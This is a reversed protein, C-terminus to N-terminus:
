MCDCVEYQMKGLGDCACVFFSAIIILVIDWGNHITWWTDIHGTCTCHRAVPVLALPALLIPPYPPLPYLSVHICMSQCMHHSTTYALWQMGSCFFVISAFWRQLSLWSRLGLLYTMVCASIVRTLHVHIIICMCKNLLISSAGLLM